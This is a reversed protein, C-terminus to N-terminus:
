AEAESETPKPDHGTPYAAHFCTLAFQKWGTWQFRLQVRGGLTFSGACGRHIGISIGPHVNSNIVDKPILSDTALRHIQDERFLIDVDSIGYQSLIGQVRRCATDWSPGSSSYIGM